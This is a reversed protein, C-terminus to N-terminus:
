HWRGNEGDLLAAALHVSVCGLRQADVSWIARRESLLLAARRVAPNELPALKFSSFVV